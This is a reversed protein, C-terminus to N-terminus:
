FLAWLLHEPSAKNWRKGENRKMMQKWIKQSLFISIGFIDKYKAHYCEMSQQGRAGILNEAYYIIIMEPLTYTGMTTM